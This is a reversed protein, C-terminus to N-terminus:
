NKIQALLRARQKVAGLGKGLKDDLDALKQQPTLKSYIAQRDLAEERKVAKIKAM